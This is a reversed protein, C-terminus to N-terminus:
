AFKRTRPPADNNDLANLAQMLPPPDDVNEEEIAKEIGEELVVDPQEVTVITKQLLRTAENVHKVTVEDLCELKALAESLRIMSELQRM